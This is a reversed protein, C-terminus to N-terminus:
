QFANKNDNLKAGAEVLIAACEVQGESVASTLATFGLRCKARSAILIKVCKLNGHAEALMLATSGDKSQLNVDGGRQILANVCKDHGRQAAIM